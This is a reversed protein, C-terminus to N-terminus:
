FNKIDFFKEYLVSITLIQKKQIIPYISVASIM